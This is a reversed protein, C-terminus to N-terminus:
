IQTKRNPIFISVPRRQTHLYEPSNIQSQDLLALSPTPDELHLYLTWPCGMVTRLIVIHSCFIACTFRCCQRDAAEVDFLCRPLECFIAKIWSGPNNLRFYISM